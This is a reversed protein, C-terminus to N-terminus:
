DPRDAPPEDDAAAGYVDSMRGRPWRALYARLKARLVPQDAIRYYTGGPLAARRALLRRTPDLVYRQGYMECEVWAHGTKARAINEIGFVVQSAVGRAALLDHLYFALDECDGQGLRATEEPTQWSDGHADPVYRVEGATALMSDATACTCGAGFPALATCAAILGVAAAKTRM